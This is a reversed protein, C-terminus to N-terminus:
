ARAKSMVRIAGLHYAGHAITAVIGTFMMGELHAPDLSRMTERTTEYEQRLGSRLADWAAQDVERVVWSESWNPNWAAGRTTANLNALSWRLHEAHAAISLGGAVSPQSAQEVSLHELTGLLGGKEADSFFSSDAGEYAEQLLGSLSKVMEGSDM